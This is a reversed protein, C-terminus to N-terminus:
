QGKVEEQLTRYALFLAGIPIVIHLTWWESLTKRDHIHDAPVRTYVTSSDNVDDTRSAVASGTDVRGRSGSAHGTGHTGSRYPRVTYGTGVTTTHGTGM